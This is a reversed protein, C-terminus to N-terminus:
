LPLAVRTLLARPRCDAALTERGRPAAIAVQERTCCAGRQDTNSLLRGATLVFATSSTQHVIHESESSTAGALM